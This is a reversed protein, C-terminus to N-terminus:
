VEEFTLDIYEEYNEDDAMGKLGLIMTNQHLSLCSKGAEKSPNGELHWSIMGTEEDSFVSFADETYLEIANMTNIILVSAAACVIDQGPDAYEAHGETQFGTCEEKENQYIVVHIM